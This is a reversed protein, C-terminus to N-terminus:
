GNGQKRNRGGGHDGHGGRNGLGLRQIRLFPRDRPFPGTGAVRDHVLGALHPEHSLGAVVHGAEVGFGALELAVLDRVPGVRVVDDHVLPATDPEGAIPVTPDHLEIGGGALQGVVHHGIRGDAIGM